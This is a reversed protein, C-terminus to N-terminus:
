FVWILYACNFEVFEHLGLFTEVDFYFSYSDCINMIFVVMFKKKKKKQWFGKQDFIHYSGQVSFYVIHDEYMFSLKVEDFNM